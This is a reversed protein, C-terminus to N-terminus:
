MAMSRHRGPHDNGRAWTSLGHDGQELSMSVYEPSSSKEGEEGAEKKDGYLEVARGAAASIVLTGEVAAMAPSTSQIKGKFIRRATYATLNDTEKDQNGRGNTSELSSPVKDSECDQHIFLTPSARELPLLKQKSTGLPSVLPKPKGGQTFASVLMRKSSIWLSAPTIMTVPLHETDGSYIAWGVQSGQGSGQNEASAEKTADAPIVGDLSDNTNPRGDCFNSNPEITVLEPSKNEVKREEAESPTVAVPVLPLFHAGSM